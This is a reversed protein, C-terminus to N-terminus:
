NTSVASLHIYRRSNVISSRADTFTSLTFTGPVTFYVIIESVEFLNCTELAMLLLCSGPLSKFDPRHRFRICIKEYFASSLLSAVVLRSLNNENIEYSDLASVSTNDFEMRIEMELTFNHWHELINVVKGAM